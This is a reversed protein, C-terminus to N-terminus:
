DAHVVDEDPHELALMVLLHDKVDRTLLFNQKVHRHGNEGMRRRLEPDALLRLAALAAGEPSHVLYGTIGNLVQLRIGGVDGGIVPKKKWLAETVTLGFGERISKQFVITSARVLANIELDSGDPLLLVHIDPDDAAAARVEQLVQFGEPDDSAGGGALVLQCDRRAKVLRYAAIVGVPDKLRDFRSIQTLFPRERDLRYKATVQDIQGETLDRNKDSLPDISPAVMFQPISLQQAFDPMSFIASDYEDVFPQLFQWVRQDPSSVDIHCRWIWRRGINKKAAILGAPQPDHIWIVDGTFNMERVNMETTERYSELMHETLDISKGHLANHFAKTVNFFTQNGKIVDWTTEVGLERLLPVMRSLLEAVGGGVPTSNINQMHLKGVHGAVVQLEQMVESGVVEEYQQLLPAPM